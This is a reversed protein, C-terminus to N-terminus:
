TTTGRCAAATACRWTGSRTSAGRACAVSSSAGDVTRPATAPASWGWRRSSRRRWRTRRRSRWRASRTASRRPRSCSCRTPASRRRARRPRATSRSAAAALAQTLAALYAANADRHAVRVVASDGPALEGAIVYGAGSSDPEVRIRMLGTSAGPEPRVVTRADVRVPPHAAPRTTAAVPAGPAGGARLVIESYGENFLLEDVGASYPESFDDWGWGYGYAADPFANGAGVVRGAVRRVGRAALSDAVGRLVAMADGRMRDSVTPDGRGVVALDGRLVGAAVRGRAVFATRWRYDPGLEALAVAGTLIKQNSAPMFLKGANHSYLTDGTTPRVVLIGWQANAFQPDSVMSDALRRLEARPDPAAPAVAGRPPAGACGAALAV